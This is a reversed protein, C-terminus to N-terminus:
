QKKLVLWAFTYDRGLCSIPKDKAKFTLPGVPELGYGRAVALFEEVDERSFITWSMGFMDIGETAIKEPWYDFSAIFVGGPRLLRAMESALIERQFGHEIVSIATIVEFSQDSFTSGLFNGVQYDIEAAFPMRLIDPNMDLASVGQYGLRRLILPVESAYAGIDLIPADKTVHEEILEVTKLVDWSKLYDGIRIGRALRYRHLIELWGPTAFSVHRRRLVRRASEIQQKNHLVQLTM